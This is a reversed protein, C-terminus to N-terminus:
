ISMVSARQIAGALFISLEPNVCQQFSLQGILEMFHHGLGGPHVHQVDPANRFMRTRCQM